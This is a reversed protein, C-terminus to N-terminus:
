HVSTKLDMKVRLERVDSELIAVQSTTGSIEKELRMIKEDLEGCYRSLEKCLQLLAADNSIHKEQLETLAKLIKTESDM